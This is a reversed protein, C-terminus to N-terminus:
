RIQPIMSSAFMGIACYGYSVLRRIFDYMQLAEHKSLSLM